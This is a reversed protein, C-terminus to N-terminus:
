MLLWIQWVDQDTTGYGTAVDHEEKVIEGLRGLFRPKGTIERPAGAALGPAPCIVRFTSNCMLGNRDFALMEVLIKAM